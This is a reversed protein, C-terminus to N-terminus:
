TTHHTPAHASSTTHGTCSRTCPRSHQSSPPVAPTPPVACCLTPPLLPAQTQCPTYSHEQLVQSLAHTWTHDAQQVCMLILKNSSPKSNFFPMNCSMGYAAHNRSHTTNGQMLFVAVPPAGAPWMRCCVTGKCNLSLEVSVLLWWPTFLLASQSLDPSACRHLAEVADLQIGIPHDGKILAAGLSGMVLVIDLLLEAELPACAAAAAQLAAAHKSVQQCVCGGSRCRFPLSDLQRQLKSLRGLHLSVAKDADPYPHAVQRRAKTDTLM